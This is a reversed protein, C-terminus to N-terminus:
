FWGHRIWFWFFRPVIRFHALVTSVWGFYKMMIRFREKLGPLINQRTLGGERFKSLVLGTNCVETANRLAYLCWEYDASFRYRVDYKKSVRRAAIFSQHSVLMGFRFDKWNLSTPPALRRLGIEEGNADVLLTQGYYVDADEKEDFVKELIDPSAPEDGANIFWFYDGSAMEMGKNMADYLGDDPGSHWKSILSQNRKIIDLTGDTSEGDVVIYEVRPWTLSGVSRITQGITEAENFVVTIISVKPYQRKEM